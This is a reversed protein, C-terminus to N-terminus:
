HQGNMTLGIDATVSLLLLVPLGTVIRTIDSAGLLNKGLLNKDETLLRVTPNRIPSALTLM